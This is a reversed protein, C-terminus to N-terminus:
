QATAGMPARADAQPAPTHRHAERRLLLWLAIVSLVESVITAAASGKWDFRPILALNLSINLLSAGVTVFLCAKQRGLGILANFAYMQLAVLFPVFALWQTALVAPQWKDGLLWPLLPACVVIM